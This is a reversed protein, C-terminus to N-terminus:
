VATQSHPTLREMLESGTTCDVIADGVAAFGESDDIDALMAAVGTAVNSGFRREAMRRLLAREEILTQERGRAVGREIGQAMGRAMGREDAQRALEDYYKQLRENVSELLTM